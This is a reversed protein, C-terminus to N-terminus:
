GRGHPSRGWLEFPYLLPKRFRPDGNLEPHPYWSVRLWSVAEAFSNSSVFHALRNAAFQPYFEEVLQHLPTKKPQRPRYFGDGEHECGM